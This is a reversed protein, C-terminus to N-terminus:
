HFAGLGTSFTTSSNMNFIGPGTGPSHFWYVWSNMVRAEYDPFDNHQGDLSITWTSADRELTYTASNTGTQTNVLLTVNGNAIGLVNLYAPVDRSSYQNLSNATYSAREMWNKVQRSSLEDSELERSIINWFFSTDM